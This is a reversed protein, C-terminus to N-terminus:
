PQWKKGSTQSEVTRLLDFTVMGAEVTDASVSIRKDAFAIGLVQVNVKKKATLLFPNDVSVTEATRETGAKERLKIQNPPIPHGDAVLQFSTVTAPTFPNVLDFSFEDASVKLSGQVFIRRAIVEPVSGM